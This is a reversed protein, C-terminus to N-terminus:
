RHRGPLGRLAGLKSSSTPLEDMKAAASCFAILMLKGGVDTTTTTVIAAHALGPMHSKMMTGRQYSGALAEVDARTTTHGAITEGEKAVCIAFGGDIRWAPCVKDGCTPCAGFKRRIGSKSAM